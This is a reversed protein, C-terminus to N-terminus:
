RDDRRVEALRVRLVDCARKVRMRLASLKVGTVAAIEEYALEEVHHLLFAERQEVPLTALVKHIEEMWDPGDVPTPADHDPVDGYQIVEAHRRRKALVTRCRNALIRFLWPEFRGDDRFRGLHHYVRVFTDQVAEEADERNGVMHLAFRLSRPYCLEVLQAFAQRDGGKARLPLSPDIPSTPPSSSMPATEPTHGARRMGRWPVVVAGVTSTGATVGWM